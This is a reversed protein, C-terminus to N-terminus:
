LGQRYRNLISPHDRRALISYVLRMSTYPGLLGLLGGYISPSKVGVAEITAKPLFVPYPGVFRNAMTNHIPDPAKKERSCHSQGDNSIVECFTAIRPGHSIHITLPWIRVSRPFRATHQDPKRRCPTCQNSDHHSLYSYGSTWSLRWM